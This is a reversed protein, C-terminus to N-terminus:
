LRNLMEIGDIDEDDESEKDNGFEEEKLRKRNRKKRDRKKRDRKREVNAANAYAGREGRSEGSDSGKNSPKIKSWDGICTDPMILTSRTEKSIEKMVEMYQLQLSIPNNTVMDAAEKFRSASNLEGKAFILKAQAEKKAKAMESVAGMIRPGLNMENFEINMFQIGLHMAISNINALADEELDDRSKMLQKLTRTCAMTCIVGKMADVLIARPSNSKFLYIEPHTIRWVGFAKIMVELNDKTTYVHSVTVTQQRLDVMLINDTCSNIAHLGPPLKEIIKGHRMKLGIFGQYVKKLPGCGCPACCLCCYKPIEGCCDYCKMFCTSEKTTKFIKTDKYDELLRPDVVDIDAPPIDPTSPYNMGYSIDQNALPKKGKKMDEESESDEIERNLKALESNKEEM